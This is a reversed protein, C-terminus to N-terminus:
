LDKYIEDEENDWEAFGSDAYKLWADDDSTYKRMVLEKGHAVILVTDGDHIDALHRMVAPV